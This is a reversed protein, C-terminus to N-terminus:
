LLASIVLLYVEFSLTSDVIYTNLACQAHVKSLAVCSRHM